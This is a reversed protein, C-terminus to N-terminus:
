IPDTKTQQIYLGSKSILIYEQCEVYKYMYNYLDTINVMKSCTSRKQSGAEGSFQFRTYQAISKGQQKYFIGKVKQIKPIIANNNM